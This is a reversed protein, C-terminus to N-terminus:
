GPPTPALARRLAGAISGAADLVRTLAQQVEGGSLKELTYGRKAAEARFAPDALVGDLHARWEALLGAPAGPPLAFMRGLTAYTEVLYLLDTADEGRAFAALLPPPESAQPTAPPLPRDNLRLILRSGPAELLAGMGDLGGVMGDGEGSLVALNRAGGRYGPVPKLPAGTLHRIIMPEIYNASAASTSPLLLPKQRALVESFSTVRSQRSVLLVRRDAGVGGLWSFRRYDTAGSAGELLQEYLLGAPLFALTRGDPRARSLLDAALKGGARGENEVQLTLGTLRQLHRAFLRSFDDNGGGADAGVILRVPGSKRPHCASLGAATGFALVARRTARGSPWMPRPM